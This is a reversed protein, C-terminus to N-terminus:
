GGWGVVSIRRLGGRGVKRGGIGTKGGRVVRTRAKGHEGEATPEVM